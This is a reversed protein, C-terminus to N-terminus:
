PKKPAQKLMDECSAESDGLRDLLGKALISVGATGIAAGGHLLAKTPDVGVKPNSLTGSIVIYPNFLEGTNIKFTSNPTANFDLNIKETKLNISGKSVMAMRSTTVAIAPSTELRGDTIKLIGAACTIQLADSNESTPLILKLVEDLLFRDLGSLNTGDLTGGMSGLFVGGNMSGAVESWTSGNGNAHFDVDLAPQQKQKDRPQGTLNLILKDATLDVKVSANGAGTPTISFASNLHGRAGEFSFLPAKMSGDLLTAEVVLNELREKKLLLEAIHLKLDLDIAAMSDLPLPTAPILKKKKDGAKGAQGTESDNIFPRLDVRSATATLKVSPKPGTLTLDLSGELRSEGLSVSLNQSSLQQPRGKLDAKIELTMPPLREGNLRGLASVDKTVASFVLDIDENEPSGGAQGTLTVELNGTEADLQQLTVRGGRSQGVAKIKYTNVTPEFSAIQVLAPRIDDGRATIEFRLAEGAVTVEGSSEFGGLPLAMGQPKVLLESLSPSKLSFRIVSGNANPQSSVVGDLQLESTGIRGRIGNLHWGDVQASMNGAAQFPQGPKFMNLAANDPMFAGASVFNAGSLQFNLTAAPQKDGNGVFGDATIKVGALEAGVATLQVGGPVLEFATNATFPKPPLLDVSISSMLAHANNGDLRLNFQSGNYDPGQGLTGSLVARVLTTKLEAQLHNLGAASVELSGHLSFAGSADGAIGLLDRFQALDDGLVSVTAQGNELDPYNPLRADLDFRSAGIDLVMDSITLARGTRKVNSTINFPKDPWNEIGFTRTFVGLSPGSAAVKLDLEGLHLLDVARATVNLSVDGVEGTIAAAYHDDKEGGEAHLMFRGSGLDETGLMATVEDIDPGQIDFRLRPSRPELLSDILGDGVIKLSGLQGSSNFSIDKGNLLNTYPGITGSYELARENLSGSMTTLLMGDAQQHQELSAILLIHQASTKDNDYRLSVNSLQLHNFIVLPQQSAPAATTPPTTSAWNNAGDASTQLKLQLGELQLFEVLLTDAFISTTKLNLKLRDIYALDRSSAWEPAAVHVNNVSLGTVSGLDIELDGQLRISYGSLGSLYRELPGKIMGPNYLLAALCVSVLVLVSAFALFLKKMGLLM